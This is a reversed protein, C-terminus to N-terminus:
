YVYVSGVSLKSQIFKNNLFGAEASIYFGWRQTNKKISRSFFMLGAGIVPHSAFEYKSDPSYYDDSYKYIHDKKVYALNYGGYAYFPEFKIFVLPTAYLATSNQYGIDTSNYPPYTKDKSSKNLFITGGANIGIGSYSEFLAYKYNAEFHLGLAGEDIKGTSKLDYALGLSLGYINKPTFVKELKEQSFASVSLFLSLIITITKM